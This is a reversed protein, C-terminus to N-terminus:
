WSNENDFLKPQIFPAFSHRHIPCGGFQEIAALHAAAGYGKHSAFGYNPYLTAYETMIRDRHVKALISAAAVTAIRLDAKPMSQQAIAIEPLKVWDILLFTPQVSLAAVALRMARKTAPAIGIQDIIEADVAGVGWALSQQQIIPELRERQTPSLKKSDRVEAWVGDLVSFPPVILAAAVVPGALAGRGAEDIGAVHLNGQQWLAQEFEFSPIESAM